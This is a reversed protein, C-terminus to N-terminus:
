PVELVLEAPFVGGAGKERSSLWLAEAHSTALMFSYVGPGAVVGAPVDVELWTGTTSPGLTAVAGGLRAPRTNWTVKAEDWTPATQFLQPRAPTGRVVSLRLRARTVPGTGAPVRFRLLSEIQPSGDVLLRGDGFNESPSRAELRADAEVAIRLVRTAAPRVTVTIEDRATRV